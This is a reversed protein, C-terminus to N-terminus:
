SNSSTETEGDNEMNPGREELFGDAYYNCHMVQARVRPIRRQIAQSRHNCLSYVLALVCTNVSSVCCASIPTTGREQTM